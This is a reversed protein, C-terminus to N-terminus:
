AMGLKFAKNFTNGYLGTLRYAENYLIQGSRIANGIHTSFVSGLRRDLTRYFDGKSTKKKAPLDADFPHQYMENLCEKSLLGLEYARRAVVITSAKSKKSITVIDTQSKWYKSFYSNPVLFEAAVLNCLREKSDQISEMDISSYGSGYGILVHALEHILTFLQARKSDNNNVFVFPVYTDVLVFGRCDSVEIRRKNSNGVVGNFEVAVGKDEILNALYSVAAGPTSQLSAWEEDISLLNRIEKVLEEVSANKYRGVFPLEEYENEELYDRLWGQRSSLIHITDLVNLNGLATVNDGRFLPIIPVEEPPAQLMLYGFPVYFKRAFDELQKKTPIKTGELWSSLHPFSKEAQDKEYGARQVAWLLLENNINVRVSGMANYHNM